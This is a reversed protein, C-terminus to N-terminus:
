LTHNPRDPCQIVASRLRAPHKIARKMPCIRGVAAYFLRQQLYNSLRWLAIFHIDEGEASLSQGLFGLPFVM